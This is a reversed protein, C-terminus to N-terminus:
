KGIIMGQPDVQRRLIELEEDTPEPTYLLPDAFLLEFGTNEVVEQRSVGPHLSEVKMRKTREDFGMVALTSIVKYPGTGPPLGAAERAGPGDIYGPSTIFDVRRVFKRRDHPVISLTKWCLSAFDNAGGSGPLRVRPHFYDEGIATSNINGYMDIQAGGLFTYDVIGRQAAEMIEFMSSHSIAPTQTYSGGVSLPLKELIPASSGAEFMIILNPATTRQALMAAALPMGVGIVAIKNDELQHAAACIMLEKLNFRGNLDAM